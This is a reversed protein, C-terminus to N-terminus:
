SARVRAFHREPEVHDVLVKFRYKSLINIMFFKQIILSYDKGICIRPGASFPIFASKTVWPSQNLDDKQQDDSMMFREPIFQNAFRFYRDNRHMHHIFILYDM